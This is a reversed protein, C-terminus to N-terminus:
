EVWRVPLVGGGTSKGGTRRGLLDQRGNLAHDFFRKHELTEGLIIGVMKQHRAHSMGAAPATWRDVFEQARRSDDALIARLRDGQGSGKPVDPPPAEPLSGGLEEISSRLWSLHTDERAIVYQYTNNFDYNSVLRAGAEHRQRLALKDRYLEQLLSILEAPKLSKAKGQLYHLGTDM